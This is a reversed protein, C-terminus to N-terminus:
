VYLAAAPNKQTGNMMQNILQLNLLYYFAGMCGQVLVCDSPKGLYKKGM